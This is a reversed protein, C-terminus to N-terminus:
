RATADRQSNRRDNADARGDRFVRVPNADLSRNGRGACNANTLRTFPPCDILVYDYASMGTAFHQRLTSSHAGEGQTLQEVDQFSRSGPLLELGETPTARLSQSLPSQM